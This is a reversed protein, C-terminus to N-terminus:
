RDRRRMLFLGAVGLVGLAITSPEPVMTLKINDIILTNGTDVGWGNSDIQINVQLTKATPDIAKATGSYNLSTGLNVTYHQFTNATAPLTFSAVGDGLQTGGFNNATWTQFFM